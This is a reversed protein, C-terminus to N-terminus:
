GRHRNDRKPVEVFGFAFVASSLPGAWVYYTLKGILDQTILGAVVAIVFTLVMLGVFSIGYRAKKSMGWFWTAFRTWFRRSAESM